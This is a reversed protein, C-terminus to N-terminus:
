LFVSLPKESRNESRNVTWRGQTALPSHMCICAKCCGSSQEARSPVGVDQLGSSTDGARTCCRRSGARHLLLAACAPPAQTGSGALCGASTQRGEVTRRLATCYVINIIAQLLVATAGKGWSVGARGGVQAGAAWRRNTSALCSGASGCTAHLRRLSAAAAAPGKWAM